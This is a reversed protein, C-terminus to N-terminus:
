QPAFFHQSLGLYLFIKALIGPPGGPGGGVKMKKKGRKRCRKVTKISFSEM